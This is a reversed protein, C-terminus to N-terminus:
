TNELAESVLARLEGIGTNKLASAWVLEEPGVGIQRAIEERRKERSPVPLKDIKNVVAYFPVGVHRLWDFMQLDLKTAGAVADMIVFVARLTERGGIYGEIMAPWKGREEEPGVAYGYGPLDVLRRGGGLDYVNLTRTKGPIQSTKALQRRGCLANLVSSKGANSRGAFAAEAACAGLRGPDTFTGIYAAKDFKLM